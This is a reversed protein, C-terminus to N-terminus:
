SKFHLRLWQSKSKLLGLENIQHSLLSNLFPKKSLNCTFKVVAGKWVTRMTKKTKNKQKGGNKQTHLCQLQVWIILLSQKPSSLCKNDHLLKVPRSCIELADSLQIWGILCRLALDHEALFMDFRLVLLVFAEIGVHELLKCLSVSFYTDLTVLETM